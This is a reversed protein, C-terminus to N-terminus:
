QRTDLGDHQRGAVALIPVVDGLVRALRQLEDPELGDVLRERGRRLSCGCAGVRRSRFRGVEDRRKAGSPRLSVACRARMFANVGNESIANKTRSIRSGRSNACSIAALKILSFRSGPVASSSIIPMMTP